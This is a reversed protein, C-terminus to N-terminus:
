GISGWNEKHKYILDLYRKISSHEPRDLTPDERIIKEAAQRAAQLIKVDQSLEAIKLRPMGSQQIGMLDGPGRLRLDQDAIKFGDHTDLMTRIRERSKPSLKYHTMLICYAQQTSRGVRGRLQHLQSLGFYEANEIVMINANPVNVGVEVVTTSVMIKTQGRTFRQMEFDKDAAKMRGHIISIPTDPFARCISEYGDMLNKYDLKDAEEILPYIVYVQRGAAIERSMFHFVRLRQADYYHFTKIPQRGPPMGDIVSIDLDGYLTMALTRPIPTATMILVHPAQAQEKQWLKARQAVGFRHQEDIIALGLNKFIVQENILAHTGVLMHLTGAALAELTKKREAHKTSGTLLAVRVHTGAALQQLVQYHQESLIETPAMLAVQGGSGLVILMALFAVITKGSGVDGQLLRNMQKGSRLDAYIEKVVRKQAQTLTFPLQKEYFSRLLSIDNFIEAVHKERNIQRLQLLQFQIYFLEEFKLQFRARELLTPNEPFHINILAERKSIMRYQQQLYTPLSDAMTTPLQTTLNKQLRRIGRSDLYYEKLRETTHYVPIVAQQLQEPTAIALEPHVLARYGRYITPKGFVIYLVGPKLQKRAWQIKQFWILKLEGTDDQLSAILKGRDVSPSQSCRIFGKLQVSPLDDKLTAITHFETRDEYRFPFHQILDSFTSIGLEEQLLLARNPGVGKLFEIKTQFFPSSSVM